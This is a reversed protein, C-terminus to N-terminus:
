MKEELKIELQLLKQNSFPVYVIGEEGLTIPKWKNFAVFQSNVQEDFFVSEESVLELSDSKLHLNYRYPRRLETTTRTHKISGVAVLDEVLAPMVMFKMEAFSPSRLSPDTRGSGYHYIGEIDDYTPEEVPFYIKQGYENHHLDDLSFSATEFSVYFGSGKFLAKDGLRVYIKAEEKYRELTGGEKFEALISDLNPMKNVFVEHLKHWRNPEIEKPEIEDM